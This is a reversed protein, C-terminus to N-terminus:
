AVLPISKYNNVPYHGDLHIVNSPLFINRLSKPAKRPRLVHIKKRESALFRAIDAELASQLEAKSSRKVEIM